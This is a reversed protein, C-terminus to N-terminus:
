LSMSINSRQHKEEGTTGRKRQKHFLETDIERRLDEGEYAKAKEIVQAFLREKHAFQSMSESWTVQMKRDLQPAVIGTLNKNDFHNMQTVKDTVERTGPKMVRNIKFVDAPGGEEKVDGLLMQDNNAWYKNTQKLLIQSDIAPKGQPFFKWWRKSEESKAYLPLEQGHIGITQEGFKETNEEVMEKRRKQSIETFTRTKEDKQQMRLFCM